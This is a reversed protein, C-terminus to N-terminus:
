SRLGRTACTCCRRCSTRPISRARCWRSDSSGSSAAMPALHYPRRDGHGHAGPLHLERHHWRPGTRHRAGAHLRRPRGQVHHLGRPEASRPVGGGVRHQRHSGLRRSPPGASRGPDGPPGRSTSACSGASTTRPPTRSVLRLTTGANNVVVHLAGLAGLAADVAATVAAPDTVDATVGLFRRGTAEVARATDALSAIDLGAVDAGEAALAVSFERGLGQAAGTVLAVRGELRM